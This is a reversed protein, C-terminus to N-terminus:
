EGLFYRWEPIQRFATEKRLELYKPKKKPIIPKVDPLGCEHNYRNGKMNNIKISSLVINSLEDEGGKSIPTVHDRNGENFKIKRKSYQCVGEYLEYVHKYSKNYTTEAIRVDELSLVVRPVVITQKPTRVFLDYPRPTLELWQTGDLLQVNTINELAYEGAFTFYFALMKRQKRGKEDLIYEGRRGDVKFTLFDGFAKEPTVLCNPVRMKNLKLVEPRFVLDNM